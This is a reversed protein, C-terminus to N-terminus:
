GGLLGKILEMIKDTGLVVVAVLILFLIATIVKVTTRLAPNMPQKDEERKAKMRVIHAEIEPLLPEIPNEVTELTSLLESAKPLAQFPVTVIINNLKVDYGTVLENAVGQPIRNNEMHPIGADDLMGNLLARETGGIVCLKVPENLDVIDRLKKSCVPCYIEGSSYVTLCSKCYKM